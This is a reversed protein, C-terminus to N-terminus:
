QVHHCGCAQDHWQQHCESGPRGNGLRLGGQQTGYRSFGCEGKGYRGVLGEAPKRRVPASPGAVAVAHQGPKAFRVGSFQHVALRIGGDRLRAHVGHKGQEMELVAPVHGNEGDGFRIGQGPQVNVSLSVEHHFVAGQPLVKGLGLGDKGHYGHVVINVAGAGGHPFFGQGEGEHFASGKGTFFLGIRFGEFIKAPATPFLVLFVDGGGKKFFRRAMQFFGGHGDPPQQHVVAELDLFPEFQDAELGPLVFERLAPLGEHLM